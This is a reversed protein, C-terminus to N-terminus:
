QCAYKGQFMQHDVLQDYGGVHESDIWIQPVTKAEPLKHLLDTKRVARQHPLMKDPDGGIVYERYELGNENFLNKARVCYGCDAKSWIEITTM